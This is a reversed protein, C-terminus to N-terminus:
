RHIVHVKEVDNTISNTLNYNIYVICTYIRHLHEVAFVMDDPMDYYITVHRHDRLSLAFFFELNTKAYDVFWVTLSLQRAIHILCRNIYIRRLDVIIRCRNICILSWSTYIRCREICIIRSLLNDPASAELDEGFRCLISRKLRHQAGRCQGGVQRSWIPNQRRRDLLFRCWYEQDFWM